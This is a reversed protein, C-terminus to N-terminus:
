GRDTDNGEGGKWALTAESENRVSTNGYPNIDRDWYFYPPTKAEDRLYQRGMATVELGAVAMPTLVCNLSLMFVFIPRYV